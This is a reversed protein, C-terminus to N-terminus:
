DLDSGRESYRVMLGVLVSFALFLTASATAARSYELKSLNNTIFNQFMYASEGPYNGFLLYSERNMKFVGVIGMIVAFFLAPVIQPIVIHRLIRIMGGGDLRVAEFQEAPIGGFAGLFVIVFYGFNKWVYLLVMIWFSYPTTSLWDIKTHLFSNVVGSQSFLLEAFLTSTAVPTMLPILWGVKIIGVGKGRPGRSPMLSFLGWALWFALFIALGGGVVLYLGTNRMSLLFAQSEMLSKINKFLSFNGGGDLLSHFISFLLPILLFCLFGLFGPLCFLLGYKAHRGYSKRYAKSKQM